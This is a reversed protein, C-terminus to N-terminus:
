KALSYQGNPRTVLYGDAVLRKLSATMSGLPIGTAQSVKTQSLEVFGRTNLVARLHSILAAANKPLATAKVSGRKPLTPASKTATKKKAKKIKADTAVSTGNSDVWSVMALPSAFEPTPLSQMAATLFPEDDSLENAVQYVNRLEEEMATMTQSLRAVLKWNEFLADNGLHYPNSGVAAHVREGYAKVALKLQEDAHFVAAGAQQIAAFLDKNLSM